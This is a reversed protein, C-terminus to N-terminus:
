KKQGAGFYTAVRPQLFVVVDPDRDIRTAAPHCSVNISSLGINRCVFLGRFGFWAVRM